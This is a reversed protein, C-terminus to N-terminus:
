NETDVLTTSDKKPHCNHLKIRLSGKKVDMSDVLANLFYQFSNRKKFTNEDFFLTDKRLRNRTCYNRLLKSDFYLYLEKCYKAVTSDPSINITFTNKEIDDDEWNTIKYYKSLLCLYTSDENKPFISKKEQSYILHRPSNDVDLLDFYDVGTTGKAMCFLKNYADRTGSKPSTIYWNIKRNTDTFLASLSDYHITYTNNESKKIPFSALLSDIGYKSYAYLCLPDNALKLECYECDKFHISTDCKISSMIIRNLGYIHHTNDQHDAVSLAIGSAAPLLAINNEDLTKHFHEEDVKAFITEMYDLVSGSGILVSLETRSKRIEKVELSLCITAIAIVLTLIISILSSHRKCWNGFKNCYNWFKIFCKKIKNKM